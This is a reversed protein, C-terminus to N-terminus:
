SIMRMCKVKTPLTSELFTRPKSQIIYVYVTYTYHVICIDHIKDFTENKSLIDVRRVTLVAM